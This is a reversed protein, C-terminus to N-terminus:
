VENSQRQLRPKWGDEFALCSHLVAITDDFNKPKHRKAGILINFRIWKNHGSCTSAFDLARCLCKAALGADMGAKQYGLPDCRLETYM